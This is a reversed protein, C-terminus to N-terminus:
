LLLEALVLPSSVLAPPSWSRDAPRLRTGSCGWSQRPLYIVENFGTLRCAVRGPIMECFGASDQIQSPRAFWRVPSLELEESLKRM